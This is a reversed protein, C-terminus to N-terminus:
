VIQGFPAWEGPTGERICIWGVYGTKRPKENWVIDGLTYNGTSPAAGGVEQKKGQFRVPGATTIDADEAFNKVNVGISGKVVIRDHLTVGGNAGIKIRVTDDTILELGSTTWTGLKFSKTDTPDIVFEHDLSRVSLAGNPTETGLGLRMTDSDWHLYNDVVFAGNVALGQLVGVRKLNSKTVTSGLEEKTLVVDSAIRYEKDKALDISESSFLRDPNSQLTFQKTYAGGTWILGKSYAAKGEGKFELPSTRQHRVDASVEDVHLKRAHIEGEVTLNGKVTLPNLVTNVAIAPVVIKGAEIALVPQEKYVTNDKIGASRFNTIMGGNIKNGSIERDKFEINPAPQDAISRHIANGLQKLIDDLNETSM